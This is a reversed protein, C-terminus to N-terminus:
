NVDLDSDMRDEQDSDDEDDDEESYYHSPPSLADESLSTHLSSPPRSPPGETKIDLGDVSTSPGAVTVPIFKELNGSAIESVVLNGNKIM